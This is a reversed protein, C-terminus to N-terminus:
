RSGLRALLDRVAAVEDVGTGTASEPPPGYRGTTKPGIVTVTWRGSLVDRSPRGVRWRAPLRDLLESWAAEREDM